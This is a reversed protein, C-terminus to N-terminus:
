EKTFGASSLSLLYNFDLHFHDPLKGFVGRVMQDSKDLKITKGIPDETGFYKKALEESIVISNADVLATAPDGKIFKLPFIKF